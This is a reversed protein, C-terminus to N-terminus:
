EWISLNKFMELDYWSKMASESKTDREYIQVSSYKSRFWNKNTLLIIESNNKVANINEGMLNDDATFSLNKM